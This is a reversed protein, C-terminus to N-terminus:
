GAACGAERDRVTKLLKKYILVFGPVKFITGLLMVFGVFAVLWPLNLVFALVNLLIIVFQNIRLAAHDVKVLQDSM